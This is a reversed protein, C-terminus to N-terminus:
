NQEPYEQILSMTVKSRSNSYGKHSKLDLKYFYEGM